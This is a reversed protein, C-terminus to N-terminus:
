GGGAVRGTPWRPGQAAAWWPPSALPAAACQLGLSWQSIGALLMKKLVRPDGVRSHNRNPISQREGLACGPQPQCIDMLHTSVPRSKVVRPAPTGPFCARSEQPHRLCWGPPPSPDTGAGWFLVGPTSEGFQLLERLGTFIGFTLLGQFQPLSFPFHLSFPVCTYVFMKPFCDLWNIVRPVNNQRQM